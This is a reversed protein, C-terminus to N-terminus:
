KLTFRVFVSEQREGFGPARKQRRVERKREEQMRTQEGARRVKRKRGETERKRGLL